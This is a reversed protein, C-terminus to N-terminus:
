SRHKGFRQAISARSHTMRQEHKCRYQERRCQEASILGDIHHPEFGLRYLADVGIGVNVGDDPSHHVSGCAVPEGVSAATHHAGQGTRHTGTLLNHRKGRGALIYRRIFYRGAHDPHDGPVRFGIHGAHPYRGVHGLIKTEGFATYHLGFLSRHADCAHKIPRVITTIRSEGVREKHGYGRRIAREVFTPDSLPRM